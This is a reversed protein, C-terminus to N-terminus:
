QPSWALRRDYKLKNRVLERMHREDCNERVKYDRVKLKRYANWLLKKRKGAQRLRSILWSFFGMM